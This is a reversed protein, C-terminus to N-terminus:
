TALYILEYKGLPLLEPTLFHYFISIYLNDYKKLTNWWAFAEFWTSASWNFNTYWTKGWTQFWKVWQPRNICKHTLLNVMMAESLLKNGPRRWAMIQVLAPINNIAVKPVFKLSIKISIRIIENLFICKFIDDPFHRGNQRPSLTNFPARVEVQHHVVALYEKWYFIHKKWIHIGTIFHSPRMVMKDKYHCDKFWQSSMKTIFHGWNGIWWSLRLQGNNWCDSWRKLVFLHEHCLKLSKWKLSSLTISIGISTVHCIQISM